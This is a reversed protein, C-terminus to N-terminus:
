YSLMAQKTPWKFVGIGVGAQTLLFEVFFRTRVGADNSLIIDGLDSNRDEEAFVNGVVSKDAPLSLLRCQIFFAEWIRKNWPEETFVM